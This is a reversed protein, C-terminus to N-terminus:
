ACNGDTLFKGIVVISALLAGIIEVVVLRAFRRNEHSVTSTARHIAITM